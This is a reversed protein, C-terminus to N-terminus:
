GGDRRALDRAPRGPVRRAGRRSRVRARRGDRMSFDHIWVSQESDRPQVPLADRGIVKLGMNELIPLIDSLPIQAGANYLKLRLESPGAEIPRYLNMAIGGSPLAEQSMSSISRRRTPTFRERYGAPFAEGYRRMLTLGHEEGQAEILADQLQDAWSRGAEVLQREVEDPDVDPIAGPVTAIIVHLRALPADTM